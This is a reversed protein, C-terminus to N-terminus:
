DQLTTYPRRLVHQMLTTVGERNHARLASPLETLANLRSTIHRRAIRSARMWGLEEAAAAAEDFFLREQRFKSGDPGTLASVSGSHRRYAFQQEADVVLTGGLKVIEFLMALDQVVDLDVRFGLGAVVATRWTLSPFYTWNGRLLSVALQEGRYERPLVGRPAYIRKVRDPLPRSREGGEDIVGVGPQIVDTGPFEGILEHVRRVYGPFMVDDCGM